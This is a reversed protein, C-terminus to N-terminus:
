SLEISALSSARAASRLARVSRKVPPICFICARASAPYSAAMWRRRQRMPADNEPLAAAQPHEVNGPRGARRLLGVKMGVVRDLDGHHQLAVELEMLRQAAFGIMERLLEADPSKEVLGRLAMMEDTM